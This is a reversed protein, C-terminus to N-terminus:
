SPVDISLVDNEERDGNYWGEVQKFLMTMAERRHRFERRNLVASEIGNSNGPVSQRFIARACVINWIMIQM